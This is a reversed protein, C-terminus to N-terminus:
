NVLGNAVISKEPTLYDTGSLEDLLPHSQSRILLVPDYRYPM